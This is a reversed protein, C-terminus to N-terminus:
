PKSTDDVAVSAVPFVPAQVRTFAVAAVFSVTVSEPTPLLTIAWGCSEAGWFSNSPGLTYM